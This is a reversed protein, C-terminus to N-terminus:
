LKANTLANKMWLSTCKLILAIKCDGLLIMDKCTEDPYIDVPRRFPSSIKEFVASEEVQVLTYVMLILVWALLNDTSRDASQIGIRM